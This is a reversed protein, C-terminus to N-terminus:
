FCFSKFFKTRNEDEFGNDTSANQSEFSNKKCVDIPQVTFNEDHIEKISKKYLKSHRAGHLFRCKLATTYSRQISSVGSARKSSKMPMYQTFELFLPLCAYDNYHESISYVYLSRCILLFRWGWLVLADNKEMPYIETLVHLTQIVVDFVNWIANSILENKLLYFRKPSTVLDGDKSSVFSKECGNKKFYQM